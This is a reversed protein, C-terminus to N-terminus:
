GITPYGDVPHGIQNNAVWINSGDGGGPYTFWTPSHHHNGTSNEANASKTQRCRGEIFRTQLSYMISENGCLFSHNTNEAVSGQCIVTGNYSCNFASHTMNMAKCGNADVEGWQTRYGMWSNHAMSNNASVQSSNGAYYAHAYCFGSLSATSIHHASNIACIGTGPITNTASTITLHGTGPATDQAVTSTSTDGVVGLTLGNAAIADVLTSTGDTYVRMQEMKHDYLTLYHLGGRSASWSRVIGIVTGIEGAGEANNTSDVLAIVDGKKFSSDRFGQLFNTDEHNNYAFLGYMPGGVFAVMSRASQMNGNEIAILCYDEIGTVVSRECNVTSSASSVIGTGCNSVVIDDVIASSGNDAFVGQQFGNIGVNMITIDNDKMKTTYYDQFQSVAQNDGTSGLDYSLSGSNVIHIASHLKWNMDTDVEESSFEQTQNSGFENVADNNYHKAFQKWVGELALDQIFGFGGGEIVIGHQNIDTFHFVTRV